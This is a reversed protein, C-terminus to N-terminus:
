WALPWSCAPTPTPCSNESRCVDTRWSVNVLHKATGGSGKIRLVARSILLAQEAWKYIFLSLSPSKGFTVGAALQFFGFVSSAIGSGM